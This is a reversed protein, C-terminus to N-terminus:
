QHTMYEGDTFLSLYIDGKARNKKAVMVTDDIYVVGVM